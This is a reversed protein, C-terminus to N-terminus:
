DHDTPSVLGLERKLLAISEAAVYNESCIVEPLRILEDRVSLVAEKVLQYSAKDSIILGATRVITLLRKEDNVQTTLLAIDDGRLSRILIEAIGLIGVSLSVIGLYSDPRLQRILELEKRYDYIDIPITRFGLPTAVGEAENVFYRSTVVTGSQAESLIDSLGELPVIQVPIGLARELEELILEGAGLDAAPVTVWVQAGCRLRWDVAELFVERIQSLSLGDVLLEDIVNQLSQSAAPYKEALPSGLQTNGEQGQFKVYIGSGAVSVVLGSSELQQYVKSITNRHLGTMAALQRTSPLRQGPPYQRSAIAFRIQDFLQKSAPINSDQHIQFPFMFNYVGGLCMILWM